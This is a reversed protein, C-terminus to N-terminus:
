ERTSDIEIDSVNKEPKNGHKNPVMKHTNNNIANDLIEQLGPSVMESIMEALSEPSVEVTAGDITYEFGDKSLSSQLLIKEQEQNLEHFLHNLIDNSFNEGMKDSINIEIDSQRLADASAYVMIVERIIPGLYAPESLYKKIKRSLLVSIIRGIAEHLKLLTDRAALKLESQMRFIQMNADNKAKTVIQDAQAQADSIIRDAELKAKAKIKEAAEKGATIGEDQLKKVFSEISEPMEVKRYTNLIFIM